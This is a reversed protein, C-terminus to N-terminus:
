FTWSFNTATAACASLRKLWTEIRASSRALIRQAPAVASAAIMALRSMITVLTLRFIQKRIRPIAISSDLDRSTAGIQVAEPRVEHNAGAGSMFCRFKRRAM